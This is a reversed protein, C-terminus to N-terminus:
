RRIVYNVSGVNSTHASQENTANNPKAWGNGYSRPRGSASRCCTGCCAPSKRDPSRPCRKGGLGTASEVPLSRGALGHHHSAALGALHASRVRRSRNRGERDSVRDRHALAHGRGAGLAALAHRRACEVPLVQSRQWGSRAAAVLWCAAARCVTAAKGSGCPRLSIIRPGQAGEAVTLAHWEAAALSAAVAQVSQPGRSVRWWDPSAYAQSGRGSWAPVAVQGGPYLRAHHEASGARLALRRCGPYGALTPVEGYGPEGTVWEGTLHGAQAGPAVVGAGIRGQDSLRDGGARGGGSLAAADDTWERPLYLAKDVLAHGQASVYALFVGVQCNGVKGLTGSYQRAVGVSKKGQKAFGTDDLVFVGDPQNLRQGVYGQLATLSRSM